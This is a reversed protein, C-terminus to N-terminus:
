GELTGILHPSSNRMKDEMDENKKPIKWRKVERQQDQTIEEYKNGSERIRKATINLRSKLIDVSKKNIQMELINM